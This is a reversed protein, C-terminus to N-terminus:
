QPPGQLLHGAGSDHSPHLPLQQSCRGRSHWQNNSPPLIAYQRYPPKLTFTHWTLTRAHARSYHTWNQESQGSCIYVDGFLVDQLQGTEGTSASFTITTGTSTAPTAPLTQRWITDSGATSTYQISNFTTKVTTGPAAFGWVTSPTDRQLVMHDGLTKSLTFATAGTKQPPTFQYDHPAPFTVEEGSAGFVILAAIIYQMRPYSTHLTDKPM